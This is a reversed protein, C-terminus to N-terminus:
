SLINNIIGTMKKTVNNGFINIYTNPTKFSEIKKFFNNERIDILINWGLEVTEIWETERRLTICPKKLMYAEKQVGGSDTLIKSCNSELRVFDLYSIPKLTIINQPLTIKNMEIIKKTRPHIPFIITKNIKGLEKIIKMLILPDDVNNPRHLTLLYYETGELSYEKLINSNISKELAYKHSEVMIDGTLFVNKLLNEANLNKIANKTPAFLYDSIHDTVVRNIEEPMIKNFSRLGAEIHVSKINLKVAALAGALTSNTDGFIIVLDPKEDMLVIEIDKLMRGTQEGHYLAVIGLNYDPNQIGLESFFLESMNEDYHQGTHIIIVDYFEKLKSYLPALKIFQPRAGVVFAIKKM